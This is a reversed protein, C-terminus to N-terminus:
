IWSEIKGKASNVSAGRIGISDDLVNAGKCLRKVQSPISGTGSFEKYRNIDDYVEVKSFFSSFLLILMLIIGIFGRIM